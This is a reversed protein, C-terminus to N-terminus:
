MGALELLKAYVTPYIGPLVGDWLGYYEDDHETERMRLTYLVPM